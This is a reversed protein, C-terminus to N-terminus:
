RWGRPRARVSLLAVVEDLTAAPDFEVIELEMRGAEIKALDLIDNIVTLLTQGSSRILEAFRRQEPSLPTNLLLGNMGLVGNLPTRIEHSMAALFQSKSENAAEAAAKARSLAREAATIDRTVSVVGGDPTRREIAHIVMGHALEQEYMGNGSAHIALRRELWAQRDAEPSDALLAEAAAEALRRFPVGVGIIDRVWPFMEYYRRNWAVVRDQADCLLFGDAMAELAQDLTGKARAVETRANALRAMQWHMLAGAALFMLVFAAAVRLVDGREDRWEALAADLPISSAILVSRYLTPRAVVIAPAGGIRGTARMPEGTAKKADLPPVLKLGMMREDPPVSALLQGDDREFTVVLGRIEVAQSLITGLLSVPVEGVVLVRRGGPMRLPRAFYLVRESTAFNVVPASIALQPAAQGLVIPRSARPCTSAWASATPSPPPWCRATTPSCPWTACWSTGAPSSSSCATPTRRTSRATRVSRPRLLSDIGALLVDVGLLTRNLAAEAGSVFRQAKGESEAIADREGREISAARRRARAGVFLGRRGLDRGPRPAALWATARRSARAEFGVVPAITRNWVDACAPRLPAGLARAGHRRLDRPPARRRHALGAGRDDPRAATPCSPSGTNCAIGEGTEREAEAWIAQELKPLEERLASRVDAPLANWAAANAGFISLGWNIAM